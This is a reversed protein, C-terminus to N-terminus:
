EIVVRNEESDWSVKKDMSEALARAGVYATGGANMGSLVKDKGCIRMKVTSM